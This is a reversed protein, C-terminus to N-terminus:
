WRKPSVRNDLETQMVRARRDTKVSDDEISDDQRGTKGDGGDVELLLWSRSQGLRSRWSM